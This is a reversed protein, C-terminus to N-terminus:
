NGYPVSLGVILQGSRGKNSGKRRITCVLEMDEGEGWQWAGRLTQLEPSAEPSDRICMESGM